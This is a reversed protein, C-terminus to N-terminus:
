PAPHPSRRFQATGGTIFITLLSSHPTLLSHTAPAVIQIPAQAGLGELQPQYELLAAYVREALLYHSVAAPM